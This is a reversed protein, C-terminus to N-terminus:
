TMPTFLSVPPGFIGLDWYIFIPYFPLQIQVQVLKRTAPPNEPSEATPCSGLDSKAAAGSQPLLQNM